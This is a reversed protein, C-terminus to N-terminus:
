VRLDVTIGFGVGSYDITDLGAGGNITNDEANGVFFDDGAGGIANEIVAGRAISLNYTLGGLSSFSEEVLSIVQDEYYGSADITDNGGGDWIAAVFFDDWNDLNWHSDAAETSNFGYVTDGDRTTM